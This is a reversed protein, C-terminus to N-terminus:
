GLTFSPALNANNTKKIMNSVHKSTRKKSIYKALTFRDNDVQSRFDTDIVRTKTLESLWQARWTKYEENKLAPLKFIGVGETRRSTECGLVACNDGPM